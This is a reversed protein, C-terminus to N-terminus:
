GRRHAAARARLWSAYGDRCAHATEQSNHEDDGTRGFPWAECDAAAAECEEARVAAVLTSLARNVAFVARAYPVPSSESAESWKGVAEWVAERAEEVAKTTDTVTAALLRQWFAEPTEGREALLRMVYATREAPTTAAYFEAHRDLFARRAKIRAYEASGEEPRYSCSAATCGDQVRERLPWDCVRCRKITDDTM